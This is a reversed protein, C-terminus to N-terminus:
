GALEGHTAGRTARDGNRKRWPSTARHTTDQISTKQEAHKDRKMEKNVDRQSKRSEYADNQQKRNGWRHTHTNAEQRNRRSWNRRGGQKNKGGM